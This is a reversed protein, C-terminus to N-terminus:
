VLPTIQAKINQIQKATDANYAEVQVETLKGALALTLLQDRRAIELLKAKKERASWATNGERCMNVLGTSSSKNSGYPVDAVKEWQKHYYCYMEVVNDKDDYRVRPEGSRGGKALEILQPLVKSIPQNKNAELIAFLPRFAKKITM